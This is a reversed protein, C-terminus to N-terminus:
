KPKYGLKILRARFKPDLNRSGPTVLNNMQHRLTTGTKPWEGTTLRHNIVEEQITKRKDCLVNGYGLDRIQKDFRPDYSSSHRSAYTRIAYYLPHGRQPFHGTKKFYAIIEKKKVVIGHHRLAYGMERVKKAFEKDYCRDNPSTYSVLRRYLAHKKPPFRGHQTYYELIEQKGRGSDRLFVREFREVSAMVDVIRKELLVPDKERVWEAVIREKTAKRGMHNDATYCTWEKRVNDVVDIAVFFTKKDQVRRAIRGIQQSYIVNSRTPRAMIGCAAMPIDEGENMINVACLVEIENTTRFKTQIEGRQKATQIAGDSSVFAAPIGHRNFLKAMRIAHQTNICFCITKYPLGLKDMSGRGYKKYAKVITLNRNKSVFLKDLEKPKYEDNKDYCGHLVSNTLIIWAEGDSLIKMKQAQSFEVNVVPQGFLEDLKKGDPRM